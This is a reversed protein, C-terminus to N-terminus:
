PPREGAGLATTGPQFTRWSHWHEQYAPLSVLREGASPGDLAVGAETFLSGTVADRLRTPDEPDVELRIPAASGDLRADFAHFSVGDAGLVLVVPVTGVEDHLVREAALENWDFAQAAGGALVGVVWSKEKWSDADRGTLESESTGAEFSEQRAYQESFAPDPELVDSDPHIELWSGWSMQRAPIEQLREGRRPGAIAEGTAQRWWSGTSGDEFMANFNEMGVLRFEEVRGDVVPSFVRGSRCVTCYTVMVPCEVFTDRVQHHYAILRIPYARAHLRGGEDEAEIGLVLADRPLATEGATAFRVVSPQLFMVDARMSGNTTWAVAGCLVTGSLVGVRAWLSGRRWLPWAAVVAATLWVFRWVSIWRHIGYALGVTDGGQSAPFPMIWYIRAVEGAVLAFVSATFLPISPRALSRM